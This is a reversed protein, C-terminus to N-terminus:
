LGKINIKLGPRKMEEKYVDKTVDLNKINNTKINDIDTYLIIVKDINKTDLDGEIFCSNLKLENINLGNLIDTNIGCKNFTIRNSTVKDFKSFFEKDININNFTIEYVNMDFDEFNIPLIKTNVVIENLKDSVEKIKQKNNRRTITLKRTNVNLIEIDKEMELTDMYPVQLDTDDVNINPKYKYTNSKIINTNDSYKAIMSNNFESMREPYAKDIYLGKSEDNEDLVNRIISRTLSAFKCRDQYPREFIIFAPRSNPDFVNALLSRSHGGENDDKETNYIDQCSTFYPSVSMNLIDETKDSIYLFLKHDDFLYIDEIQIDDKFISLINQLNSDIFDNQKDDPYLKNWQAVIRTITSFNKSFIVDDNEKKVKLIEGDKIIPKGDTDRKIILDSKTESLSITRFIPSYLGAIQYFTIDDFDIEDYVGILREPLKSKDLSRLLTEKFKISLNNFISKLVEIDCNFYQGVAAKSDEDSLEWKGIIIDNSVTSKDYDLYKEGWKDTVKKLLFDNDKLDDKITELFALYKM